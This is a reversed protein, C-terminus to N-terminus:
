YTEKFLASKGETDEVDQAQYNNLTQPQRHPQEGDESLRVPPRKTPSFRVSPYRGQEEENLTQRHEALVKDQGTHGASSSGGHSVTRGSHSRKHHGGAKTHSTYATDKSTDQVERARDSSHTITREGTEQQPRHNEIAARQTTTATLLASKESRTGTTTPDINHTVEDESSRVPNPSKQTEKPEHRRDDHSSLSTSSSEPYAPPVTTSELPQALDQISSSTPEALTYDYDETGFSPPDQKYLPLTNGVALKSFPEVPSMQQNDHRSTIDRLPNNNEITTGWTPNNVSRLDCGPLPSCMLKGGEKPCHCVQCHDIQFTHGAEYKKNGHTCGLRRCQTCGDAPQSIEICNPSIEPCPIFHCSIKGGGRPCSCETSGFDVFYSEGEPVKGKRFGAQICDYYQYGECTCGRQTCTPCCAGKELVTEICTQLVPCDVGTCDRQSLCIDICLFMWCLFLPAKQLNM